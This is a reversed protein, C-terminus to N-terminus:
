KQSGGSQNNPPPPTAGSGAPEASVATNMRELAQRVQASSAGDGDLSDDNISVCATKVGYDGLFRLVTTKRQGYLQSSEAGHRLTLAGPATLFDQALIELDQRGLDNLEASNARFHYPM